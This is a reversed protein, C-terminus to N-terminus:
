MAFTETALGNPGPDQLEFDQAMPNGGNRRQIGARYGSPLMNGYTVTNGTQGGVESFTLVVTNASTTQPLNSDWALMEITFRADVSDVPRKEPTNVADTQIVERNIIKEFSTRIKGLYTSVGHAFATIRFAANGTGSYAM